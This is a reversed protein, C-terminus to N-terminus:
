AEIGVVLWTGFVVLAFGALKRADLTRAEGMLGYHDIIAGVILTSATFLTLGAGIGLRAITIGLTAVVILGMLGASFAWWPVERLEAFRSGGFVVMAVGVALGGLGYTVFTSALTGVKEEMVGLSGSQLAGAVGGIVGILVVILSSM